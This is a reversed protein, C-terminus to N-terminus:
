NKGAVPSSSGPSPRGKEGGDSQEAASGQGLREVEAHLYKMRTDMNELLKRNTAILHAIIGFLFVFSGIVLFIASLILSQVHGGGQGLMILLLYRLGLFLGALFLVSALPLFLRLPRYIVFILLITAVSRAVYSPISKILRSPRLDPNTHVPVSCIRMGNQGAQIITEVTYTYESFVHLRMAAERSIARFGSPADRVETNSAIRVVASGLRQLFKKAPSFHAIQEIPRAGIVMDAENRLIPDILRPIDDASYQNDADTNVIIDAGAELCAEIGSTFGRALGQHGNLQVVHDVGHARATKVTADTSGDDIILWEVQDVGALERPLADLTPGITEAENYCPVQIILKTM